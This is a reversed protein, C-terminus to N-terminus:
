ILKEYNQPKIIEFKCVGFIAALVKTKARLSAFHLMKSIPALQQHAGNTLHAQFDFEIELVWLLERKANM